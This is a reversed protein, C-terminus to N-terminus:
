KEKSLRKDIFYWLGWIGFGIVSLIIGAKKWPAHFTITITHTGKELPMGLFAQNVLELSSTRDEGDVEIHYGEEYPLTTILYGDTDMTISGRITNGDREDIVLPSAVKSPQLLASDIWTSETKVITYVGKSFRITLTDWPTNSSVVFHMPNNENYYTWDKCSLTNTVGNITITMVDEETCSSEQLFLSLTLIDTTKEDRQFVLYGEDEEVVIQHNGDVETVEVNHDILRWTSDDMKEWPFYIDSAGDEVVDTQLLIWKQLLPSLTEYTDYSLLQRSGYGLPLVQDNQCLRYPFSSVVEQYALPCEAKTILYKQSLLSLITPDTTDDIMYDNRSSRSMQMTDTLFDHYLSNFSSSYVTSRYINKSFLTNLWQEEDTVIATRYFSDEPIQELLNTIAEVEQSSVFSKPVWVEEQQVLLCSCFVLCSTVIWYWDRQKQYKFCLLFLFTTIFDIILVVFYAEEYFVFLDVLFVFSLGILAINGHKPFSEEMHLYGVVYYLLFPLFPLLIKGRAYLGGNFVFSCIPFFVLVLFVIALMRDEKKKRFVGLFLIALAVFSLGLNYNHYLLFFASPNPLLQWFLSLSITLGRGSTLLTYLTPLLLFSTCLTAIMMVLLVTLLYKKMAKKAINKKKAEYWTYILLMLFISSAYYFSTFIMLILLLFLPYKRGKELLDDIALMALILFPMYDVFMIQRHFHFLLSSSCAFLISGFFAYRRRIGHKKLFYYFLLVSVLYLMSYCCSFYVDMSVQPFLYSLMTFPQFLGYYALHYLNMGSGLHMSFDPLLEGTQYFLDRFYSALTVHQSYWDTMSGFYTSPHWVLMLLLLCFSTLLLYLYDRKKM